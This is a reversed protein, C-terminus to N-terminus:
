KFVIVLEQRQDIDHGYILCPVVQSEYKKVSLLYDNTEM